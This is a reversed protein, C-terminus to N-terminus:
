AKFCPLDNEKCYREIEKVIGESSSDAGEEPWFILDSKSPHPVILDFKDVWKNDEEENKGNLYRVSEVFDIFDKRTFDNINEASPISIM